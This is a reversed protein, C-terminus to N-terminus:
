QTLWAPHQEVCGAYTKKTKQIMNKRCRFATQPATQINLFGMVDISSTYKRVNLMLINIYTGTWPFPLDPHGFKYDFRVAKQKM